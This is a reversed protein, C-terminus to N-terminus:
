YVKTENPLSPLEYGGYEIKASHSIERGKPKEISAPTEFVFINELTSHGNLKSLADQDVQTKNVYLKRLNKCQKLLEFNEGDISTNNLKLITLNECLSFKSILPNGVETESLDLIAIYKKIPELLEWDQDKFDNVNLCAIKLLSSNLSIPEVLIGRAKISQLIVPSIKPLDTQPFDWIKDQLFFSELMGEEVGAAALSIDFSAGSDVWHKVLFIEEKSPQRKEKPPMHEEDEKPLLIRHVLSSISANDSFIVPGNKGGKLIDGQSTMVLGGKKNKPNHCSNCNKSLIPLVADEFFLSKEWNDKELVLGSTEISSSNGMLRQVEDPLVEMLYDEGHTLNGGLHGTLVIVIVLVLGFSKTIKSNSFNEAKLFLYFGISSVLTLCGFILHWKVTEFAYGENTYLMLGSVVSLVSALSGWFVALRIAPFLVVKEKSPYFLFLIGILLFGIPLHVLLPHFRGFLSLIFEM